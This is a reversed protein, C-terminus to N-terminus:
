NDRNHYSDGAVAANEYACGVISRMEERFSQISYKEAGEAIEDPRRSVGRQEFRKVADRLEDVGRDFLIGNEGDTLQHKTYGDRVGIVPTGSALAEVPVIGFDENKAAFIFAKASGLLERKESESLFGRFEINDGAIQRLEEEQPGTGGVILKQDPLEEFARVIEDIGKSPVLRSFTFYFDERDDPEYSGVDVPPYVVNVEDIGWYRQVRRQILESNAVYSDPFPTYPFYLLRTAMSVLQTLRNGGQEPFRDYATRPTSHVYKVIVQEDPPVYWGMENGSQILVDYDHLESVHQWNWMYYLDRFAPSHKLRAFVSDNFLSYHEVENDPVAEPDGFGYYLPADFTRALQEAVVEGGGHALYNGHVVALSHGSM